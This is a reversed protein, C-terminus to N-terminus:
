RGARAASRAASGRRLWEDDPLCVAGVAELREAADRLEKQEAELRTIAEAGAKIQQQRRSNELNASRLSAEVAATRAREQALESAHRAADCVAAEDRRADARLWALGMAVGGVVVVAVCTTAIAGGLPGSAISRARGWFGLVKLGLM